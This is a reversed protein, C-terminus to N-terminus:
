FEMKELRPSGLCTKKLFKAFSWFKKVKENKEPYVSVKENKEPYMSVMFRKSEKKFKILEMM